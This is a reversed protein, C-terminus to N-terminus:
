EPKVRAGPEKRPPVEDGRRFRGYNFVNDEVIGSVMSQMSKAQKGDKPENNIGSDIGEFRSWESAGWGRAWDSISDPLLSIIKNGIKLFTWRTLQKEVDDESTSINRLIPKADKDRSIRDGFVPDKDIKFLGTMMAAQEVMECYAKDKATM